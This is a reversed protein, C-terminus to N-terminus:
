ARDALFYRKRQEIEDRFGRVRRVLAGGAKRALERPVWNIKEAPWEEIERINLQEPEYYRRLIGECIMVFDHFFGGRELEWVFEPRLRRQIFGNRLESFMSNTKDLYESDLCPKLTERITLIDQIVFKSVFKGSEDKMRRDLIQGVQKVNRVADHVISIEWEAQNQVFLLKVFDVRRSRDVLAVGISPLMKNSCPLVEKRGVEELDIGFVGFVEKTQEIYWRLMGDLGSKTAVV